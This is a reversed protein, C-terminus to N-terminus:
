SNRESHRARTTRWFDLASSESDSIGSLNDLALDLAKLDWRNTGPIPAPLRGASVWASFSQTSLSCYQSATERTLLRPDMATRTANKRTAPM